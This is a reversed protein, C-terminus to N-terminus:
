PEIFGEEKQAAIAEAIETLGSGISVSINGMEKGVLEIAGMQTNAGNVGLADIKDAIRNLARAIAFLGDVVNAPELNSDSENESILCSRLGDDTM